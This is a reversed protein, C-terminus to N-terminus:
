TKKIMLYTNLLGCDHIFVLLKVATVGVAPIKNEGTEWKNYTGYDVGLAKAMDTKFRLGISLRTQKLEQPNM